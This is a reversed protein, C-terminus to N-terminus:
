LISSMMQFNEIVGGAVPALGSQLFCSRMVSNPGFRMRLGDLAEDLRKKKEDYPEYLSLQLCGNPVLDSVRVGMGRLPVG